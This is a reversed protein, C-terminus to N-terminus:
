GGHRPPVVQPQRASQAAKHVMTYAYEVGAGYAGAHERLVDMLPAYHEKNAWDRQWELTAAVTTLRTVGAQVM